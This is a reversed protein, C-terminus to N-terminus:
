SFQRDFVCPDAHIVKQDSDPALLISMGNKLRYEYIGDWSRILEPSAKTQSFVFVFLVFVIYRLMLKDKNAM